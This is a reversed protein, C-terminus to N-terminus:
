LVTSSLGTGIVGCAIRKGSNGTPQSKLDDEFEHIILSRGMFMRLNGDIVTSLEAKGERDSQLNGLDGLHREQSKLGGHKQNKPNFHVGAMLGKDGCNGLEHIHFGFKQNPKLGEVKAVVQVKKDKKHNITEFSVSGKIDNDFGKVISLGVLPHKKKSSDSSCKKNKWTGYKGSECKCSDCKKTNDCKKFERSKSDKKYTKQSHHPKKKLLIKGDKLNVCSFTFFSSVILILLKSYFNMKLGKSIFVQPLFQCLIIFFDFGKKYLERTEKL